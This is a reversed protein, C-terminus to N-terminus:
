VAFYDGWLEVEPCITNIRSNLLRDATRSGKIWHTGFIQVPFTIGQITRVKFLETRRSGWMNTSFFFMAFSNNNMDSWCATSEDFHRVCSGFPIEGSLHTFLCSFILTHLHLYCLGLAETKTPDSESLSASLIDRCPQM